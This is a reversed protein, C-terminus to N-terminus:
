PLHAVTAGSERTDTPRPSAALIELADAIRADREATAHQYILAARPSSHGLRAILEKTTAGAIATQTGATHRLDHFRVGVLGTKRTAPEWIRRRFNSRRMPGGEAAPFVLGEPGRDSYETLHRELIEVLFRPVVVTRNGAETKPLGFALTGDVETLQEAVTITRHLLDVRSRRLGALEGWRLGAFGATSVLAQYRGPVAATLDHVQEPSPARVEAVAGNGRGQDHV